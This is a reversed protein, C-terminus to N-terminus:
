KRGAKKKPLAAAFDVGRKVWKSLGADKAIAAGGVLLWGKMPRGTIDFIRVGPEKVASETTEPAVRVILEDGRIGVSMNGNVLFAVGGFMRKEAVGPRDLHKRVREALKEDFAMAPFSLGFMPVM